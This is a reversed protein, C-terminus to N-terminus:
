DYLYEQQATGSLTEINQFPVPFPAGGSSSYFFSSGAGDGTVTINGYQFTSLLNIRDGIAPGNGDIGIGSLVGLDSLNFVDSEATGIVHQIGSFGFPQTNATNLIKVHGATYLDGQDMASIDVIVGGAENCILKDGGSIAGGTISGALRAGSNFIFTVPSVSGSVNEINSFSAVVNAPLAETTGAIGANIGTLTIRAGAVANSVFGLLDGSTIGTPDNGGGDVGVTVVGKIFISDDGNEGYISGVIGQNDISDNGDGAFINAIKGAPEITFTDAFQTGSLTEINQFNTNSLVGAKRTSGAGDGTVDINRLNADDNLIHNIRDGIASPAFAPGNGDIGISGNLRGVDFINFIDSETTGIVDVINEFGNFPDLNATNLIKVHGATFLNGRNIGILDLIVGGAENCILRDNNLSSYAIISGALRAGNNLVFTSGDSNTQINEVNIFSAAVDTLLADSTGAMGANVGTLTVRTGATRTFEISDGNGAIQGGGDVTGVSGAIVIRDNGDGAFINALKGFEEIGFYDGFPTGAITEIHTFETYPDGPQGFLRTRGAGNGTVFTTGNRLTSM